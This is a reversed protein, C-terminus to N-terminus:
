VGPWFFGVDIPLQMSSDEHGCHPCEFYITTDIDPTVEKLHKRLALSDRSLMRDVYQNIYAREDNGDLAVIVQKLRTTLDRDIGSAKSKKKNAKALEEIKKEDGHTLMKLTLESKSAPLKFKHTTDGEAFTSWDIEKEQFQQLDIVHKSKEGCDPCTIEVEYDEGYALIRAAIFIANKDVTLLDNYNIKTVILSQLLKDIVVGQKILNQSALIDEEKATMYKMEIKGSKLPHGEPYFMGKSPLAIVETPVNTSEGKTLSVNDSSSNVHDAMVMQKLEEDSLPNKNPYDENVVKSM